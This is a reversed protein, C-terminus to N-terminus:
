EIIYAYALLYCSYYALVVTVVLREKDMVEAQIM